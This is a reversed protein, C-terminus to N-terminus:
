YYSKGPCGISGGVWLGVSGGVCQVGFLFVCVKSLSVFCVSSLVCVCVCTYVSYARMTVRGPGLGEASRGGEGWWGCLRVCVDVGSGPRLGM